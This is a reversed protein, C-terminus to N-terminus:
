RTLTIEARVTGPDIRSTLTADVARLGDTKALTDLVGVLADFSIAAFTITTRNDKVELSTLAGKLAREGLVREIAVRSDGGMPSGMPNLTGRQLGTIETAQARAAALVARDRALERRVRITDEQMPQGVWGWAAALVVVAAAAMALRRERTSMRDWARVFSPPVPIFELLRKTIM